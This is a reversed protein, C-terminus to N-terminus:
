RNQPLSSTVALTDANTEDPRPPLSAVFGFLWLYQTLYFYNPYGQTHLLCFALLATGLGLASAASERPTVLGIAGIVALALGWGVQRPLEIGCQHHLFSAVTISGYQVPRQLHKWLVIELFASPEALFWPLMLLLGLGIGVAWLRWHRRHAVALPWLLPLGFQKGTLGLGILLYGGRRFGVAPDALALGWGLLAALMPEYWAQEIIFPVRVANLHTAMAVVGLALTKRRWALFAMALGALVDAVVNSWRVDAGFWRPPISLLLPLPPYGAPRPDPPEEIGFRSARETGYPSEIAQVYPNRGALIHDAGDRLLAQVDIVPDPSAQLTLARTTFGFIITLLPIAAVLFRRRWSWVRTKLAWLLSIPLAAVSLCGLYGSLWLRFRAALDEGYLLTPTGLAAFSLVWSLPLVLLAGVIERRVSSVCASTPVILALGSLVGAAVVAMFSWPTYFGWSHLTGLNLTAVALVVLASRPPAKTM